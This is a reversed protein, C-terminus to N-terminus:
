AAPRAASQREIWATIEDARWFTRRAIKIPQPFTRARVWRWRTVDSVPVREAVQGSTLLQVTEIDAM